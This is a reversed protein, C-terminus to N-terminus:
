KAETITAYKDHKRRLFIDDEDMQYMWKAVAEAKNSSTRLLGFRHEGKQSHERWHIPLEVGTQQLITEKIGELMPEGGCITYSLYTYYTGGARKRRSISMSGDGDFYGRVFHSMLEAPVSTPFPCVVSKRQGGGLAILDSCMKKSSVKLRRGKAGNRTLPGTYKVEQRIQELIYEDKIHQAIDWRWANGENHVCGDALWFGFIYAKKSNDITEFYSEDCSYKKHGKKLGLIHARGRVGGHSRGLHEAIASGNMKAHNAIIYTDEEITYRGTKYETM